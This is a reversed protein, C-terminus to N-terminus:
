KPVLFEDIIYQELLIIKSMSFEFKYELQKIHMKFIVVIHGLAATKLYSVSVLTSHSHYTMVINTIVPKM